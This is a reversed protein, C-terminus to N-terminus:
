LIPIPLQFVLAEAPQGARTKPPKPKKSKKQKVTDGVQYHGV